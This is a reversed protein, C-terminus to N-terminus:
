TSARIPRCRCPTRTTPTASASMSSAAASRGTGTITYTTWLSASDRPVNLPVNGTTNGIGNIYTLGQIIRANLYTYGGFVQWGPLIRGAAGIRGGQVRM